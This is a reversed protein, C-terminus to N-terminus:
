LSDLFVPYYNM